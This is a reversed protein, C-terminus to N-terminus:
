ARAPEQVPTALVHHRRGKTFVLWRRRRSPQGASGGRERHSEQVTAAILMTQLAPSYM